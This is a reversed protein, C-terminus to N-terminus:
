CSHYFSLILVFASPGLAKRATTTAVLPVEKFKERSMERVTALDQSVKQVISQGKDSDSRSEGTTSAVNKRDFRFADKEPVRDLLDDDDRVNLKRKAGSKLPQGVTSTADASMSRTTELHHSSERRKKRTELNASLPPPVEHTVENVDKRLAKAQSHDYKIPDGEEFHAVPPPGLDPSDTVNETEAFM